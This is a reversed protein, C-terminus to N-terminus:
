LCRRGAGASAPLSHRRHRGQWRLRCGRPRAPETSCTTSCAAWSRTARRRSSIGEFGFGMLISDPTSISSGVLSGPLTARIWNNANPGSGAPPRHGALRRIRDRVIHEHRGAADRRRHVRRPGAGGLRERLRDLDRRDPRRVRLDVSWQQWGAPQRFRREVSRHHRDGHVHRGPRVDPLSRALHLVRWQGRLQRRILPRTATRM